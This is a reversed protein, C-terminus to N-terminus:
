QFIDKKYSIIIFTFKWDKHGSPVISKGSTGELRRGYIQADEEPDMKRQAGREQHQTGGGSRVCPAKVIM